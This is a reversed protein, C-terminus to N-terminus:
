TNYLMHCPNETQEKYGWTSQCATLNQNSFLFIVARLASLDFLPTVPLPGCSLLTTLNQCLASFRLRAHSVCGILPTESSSVLPHLCQCRRAGPLLYPFFDERQTYTEGDTEWSVVLLPGKELIIHSIYNYVLTNREDNNRIINGSTYTHSYVVYTNVPNQKLYSVITSIGYFGVM